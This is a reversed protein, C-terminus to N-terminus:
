GRRRGHRPCLLFTPTLHLPPRGGEERAKPTAQVRATNHQPSNKFNGTPQVGTGLLLDLTKKKGSEEKLFMTNQKHKKSCHKVRSSTCVAIAKDATQLERPADGQHCTRPDNFKNRGKESDITSEPATKLCRAALKKM